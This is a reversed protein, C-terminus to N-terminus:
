KKKVKQYFKVLVSEVVTTALILLSCFTDNYKRLKETQELLSPDLNM